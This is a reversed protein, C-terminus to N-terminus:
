HQVCSLLTIITVGTQERVEVCVRVSNYMHLSTAGDYYVPM